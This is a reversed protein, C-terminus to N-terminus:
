TFFETCSSIAIDRQFPTVQQGVSRCVAGELISDDSSFVVPGKSPTIDSAPRSFFTSKESITEDLPTTIFDGQITDDPLIVSTVTAGITSTGVNSLVQSTRLFYTRDRLFSTAVRTDQRLIEVKKNCFM